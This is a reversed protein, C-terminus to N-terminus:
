KKHFSTFCKNDKNLCPNVKCKECSIYTYSKCNPNKFTTRKKNWIPWHNVPDLRVDKPPLSSTKVRVRKSEIPHWSSPRGRKRPEPGIQCLTQALETRFKKQNMPTDTSGTELLMRRYLIWSNIVMSPFCAFM